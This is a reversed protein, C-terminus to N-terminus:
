PTAGLDERIQKALIEISALRHYGAARAALAAREGAKDVLRELRGAFAGSTRECEALEALREDFLHGTSSVTAVGHALALMAGSRRMTLGDVYPAAVVDLARMIRGVVAADRPGQRLVRAEPPWDGSEVDSGFGFRVWVVNPRSALRRASEAIWDRRFGSAGPSFVGIAVDNEGLGLARRAEPRPVPSVPLTAGVPALVVKVHRGATRRAIEAFRPVPTYVVKALRIVYRFQWRMPWGTLLWPLRTFPVFPEHVIIAVTLGARRARRLGICLSPSVGRRGFLFPVFQTVIAHAGLERARAGIELPMVGTRCALPEFLREDGTRGLVV